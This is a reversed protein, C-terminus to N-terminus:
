RRARGTLENEPNNTGLTADGIPDPPGQVERAEVTPNDLEVAGSSSGQQGQRQAQQRNERWAGFEQHFQQERERCYDAYDRDLADMQRQRWNRYHDDPNSSFSTRGREYDGRGGFGGQERGGSYDGQFGGFGHERGYGSMARHRQTWDRDDEWASRERGRDRGELMFRRDDSWGREDDRDRWGRERDRDYGEDPDIDGHAGYGDGLYGHQAM